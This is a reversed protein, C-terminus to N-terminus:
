QQVNRRGNNYPYANPFNKGERERETLLHPYEWMEVVEGVKDHYIHRVETTDNILEGKLYSVLKEGDYKYLASTADVSLMHVVENSHFEVDLEELVKACSDFTETEFAGESTDSVWYIIM